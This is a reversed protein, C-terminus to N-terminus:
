ASAAAALSLKAAALAKKQRTVLKADGALMTRMHRHMARIEELHAEAGMRGTVGAGHRRHRNLPSAVYAVSGGLSLAEAYLRWDLALRLPVEGARGLADRLASRRWVVASANLVLNRAGLCERLFAEAGITGSQALLGTGAERYYAKHDGWLTAGDGDIARSDAFGFAAGPAARLAACVQELLGPEALDDAEAIWVFEGRALDAARRWQGLLGAAGAAPPVWGMAPGAARVVAESGDTSGDDLVVVELPPLTQQLVSRLRGALHAAYNLNPIMVSVAARDPAALDLLADAYAGFPFRQRAVRALRARQEAGTQLAMVRLQRVMAAADGLPVAVGAGFERLVDPAAGAEEFAVTPVGASMAELVVSPYPDERSTLLHM